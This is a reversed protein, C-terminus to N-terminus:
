GVEAAAGKVLWTPADEPPPERRSTRAQQMREVDARIRARAVDLAVQLREAETRADSLIQDAEARAAAKLSEADARAEALLEEASRAALRM